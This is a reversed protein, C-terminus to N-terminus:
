RVIHIPFGLKLSKWAKDTTYVPAKLHFALALCCRDGLSLGLVKTQPILSGAYVAQSFDLPLFESVIGIIAATAAVESMGRSMLKGQVEALNVTSMASNGLHPILLEAGPEDALVALAASADLVVRSL